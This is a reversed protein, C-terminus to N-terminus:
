PRTPRKARKAPKPLPNILHAPYHGRAKRCDICRCYHAPDPDHQVTRPKRGGSHTKRLAQFARAIDSPDM